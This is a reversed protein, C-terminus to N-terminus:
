TRPRRRPRCADAGGERRSRRRSMRPPLPSRSPSPVVAAAVVPGSSAEELAAQIAAAPDKHGARREREVRALVKAVQGDTISADEDSVPIGMERLLHLLAETDVRLDQALEIVRM